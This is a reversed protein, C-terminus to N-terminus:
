ILQTMATSGNGSSSGSRHRLDSQELGSRSYDDISIRAWVCLSGSRFSHLRKNTEALDFRPVM